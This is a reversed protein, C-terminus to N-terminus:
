WVEDEWKKNACQMDAKLCKSSFIHCLDALFKFYNEEM